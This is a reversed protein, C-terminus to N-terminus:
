KTRKLYIIVGISLAAVAAIISYKKVSKRYEERMAKEKAEKIQRDLENIQNQSIIGGKALYLNLLAQIDSKTRIIAPNDGLGYQSTLVNFSEFNDRVQDITLSM